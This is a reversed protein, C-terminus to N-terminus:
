SEDERRVSCRSQRGDEETTSLKGPSSRRRDAAESVNLTGMSMSCRRMQFDAKRREINKEVMDVSQRRKMFV